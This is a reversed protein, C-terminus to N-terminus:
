RALKLDKGMLFDEIENDLDDFEDFLHMDGFYSNQSSVFGLVPITFVLHTNECFTMDCYFSQDTSIEIENGKKDIYVLDGDKNYRVTM